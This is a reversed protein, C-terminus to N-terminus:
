RCRMKRQDNPITQKFTARNRRHSSVTWIAFFRWVKCRVGVLEVFRFWLLALMCFRVHKTEIAGNTSQVTCFTKLMKETDTQGERESHTHLNTSEHEPLSAAYLVDSRYMCIPFICYINTPIWPIRTDIKCNMASCCYCFSLLSLRHLSELSYINRLVSSLWTGTSSSALQKM